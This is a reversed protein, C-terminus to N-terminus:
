FSFQVEFEIRRNGAAQNGGGGGFGGALSVSEGFFPSRLNGVPTGRNTRNFLNRIQAGLEIKFRSEEDDSGVRGQGGGGFPSNIGGRGGGGGGQSSASASEGGGFGFEKTIRLNVGFFGPGRGYNRPIITDGLDPTPDLAGFRTVVVGAESPDAAFSPRDTFLTDANLDTGTTINFPAGSRITIFPSLSLGFPASFNGGIVFRHRLDLQARGYEASLDYSNAPFTGPGDSDSKAGGFAYNGFLSAGEIFNSRFNLILQQQNFRGTSEYQFVNGTLPNPRVGNIPANINRSRLLRSTHANVYTAALTTKFPLQREVGFAAQITLPTQLDPSVVRTTQPQAFAALQDTTPVNAAGNLSFVVADLIAPDTVLYQRQNTGNFRLAQLTLNEAFRDYFVGVGGRFVMKAKKNGKAPAYAFGFRPALNHHSSINTQTEYRLGFSLTLDPRMRWDDQAFLGADTQKIRAEPNGGAISFQEPFAGSLNLITNRYQDLGTFTFTGAFNNSASDALRLHRLRLGVKISHKDRLFSTYNQLEFRDENAFSLGVNAGGSTFADLVRITPSNDVSEQESRRHIYQFRLENVTSPNIIATEIIRATHDSSRASFGRSLLDFGSLGANLMRSNSFSYRAVLTHDENLKLDLRPSFELDKTPSLVALQFSTPNLNSDLILANILSNSDAAEREFDVFFSAQKKRIPGGLNGNLNRVQFPARNRAFPNRSNLSEDEFEFEAEGRSKDTGPKTFIEIRGFGLRDYESSFPNQNIRIERITDRPPLRGGSFGDVFVEGGSPGAAPGALAQLASALEESDDPLAQIEAERLVTASANAEPDTNVAQEREVTVEENVTLTLMIELSANSGNAVAVDHSEHPAFGQAFVRLSYKGAALNNIAFAGERNTQVKRQAGDPGTVTVGANAVLAGAPDTVKGRLSGNSTQSQAACLAIGIAFFLCIGKGTAKSSLSLM